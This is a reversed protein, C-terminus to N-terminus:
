GGKRWNYERLLSARINPDPDTGALAGGRYVAYPSRGVHAPISRAHASMAQHTRPTSVSQAFAPSAIAAAMALALVATCCVFSKTMIKEQEFCIDIPNESQGGASPM